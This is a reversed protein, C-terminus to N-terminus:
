LLNLSFFFRALITTFLVFLKQDSRADGIALISKMSQNLHNFTVPIRLRNKHHVVQYILFIWAGVHILFMQVNLVTWEKQNPANHM